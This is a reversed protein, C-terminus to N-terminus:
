RRRRTTSSAIAFLMFLSAPAPIVRVTMSESVMTMNYVNQPNLQYMEGVILRGDVEYQRFWAADLVRDGATGDLHLTYNYLQVPNNFSPLPFTWPQHQRLLISADPDGPPVFQPQLRIVINGEERYGLEGFSLQPLVGHGFSSVRGNAGADLVEPQIQFRGFYRQGIGTPFSCMGRILINPTDAAVELLNRHYTTGGDASAEWWWQYDGGYPTQGCALPVLTTLAALSGYVILSAHPSHFTM